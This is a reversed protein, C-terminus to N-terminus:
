VTGKVDLWQGLGSVLGVLVYLFLILHSTPMQVGPFGEYGLRTEHVSLWCRYHRHVDDFRNGGEQDATGAPSNVWTGVLLM